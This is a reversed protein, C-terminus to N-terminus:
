AAEVDRFPLRTMAELTTLVNINTREDTIDAITYGDLVSLFANLAERFAGNLGCSQELPCSADDRFCEAMEFRDEVSRVVAGVTIDEAPRALKFGGTRGRMTIVFGTKRTSQLVKHLFPQSLGYFAAVESLRVPGDHAACYM